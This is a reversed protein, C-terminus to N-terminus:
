GKQASLETERGRPQGREPEYCSAGMTHAQKIEEGAKFLKKKEKLASLLLM